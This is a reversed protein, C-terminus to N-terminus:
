PFTKTKNKILLEFKPLTRLSRKWIESELM